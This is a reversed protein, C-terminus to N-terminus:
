LAIAFFRFIIFRNCGTSVQVYDGTKYLQGDDSNDSLHNSVFGGQKAGCYGRGLNRSSVYLSGITGDAVLNLDDDLVYAKSNDVPVGIPIKDEFVAAAVDEASTFTEFTVDMM